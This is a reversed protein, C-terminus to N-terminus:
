TNYNATQAEDDETFKYTVKVGNQMKEFKMEKINDCIKVQGRYLGQNKFTYQTGDSLIVYSEGESEKCELIEINSRNLDEIFYGNFRTFEQSPNVNKGVEEVNNYFFATIISIIGIVVLMIIIYVIISTLAVGKESKM